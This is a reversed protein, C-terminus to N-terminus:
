PNLRKGKIERDWKQLLRFERPSVGVRSRFCSSFHGHSSFGTDLAISLIDQKTSLLLWRARRLRQEIVYQAPTASFSERFAILLHHTQIQLVAGLRDLTLPEGLHSQIYEEVTRKQADSFRPLARRREPIATGRRYNQFLHIGLTWSLTQSMMRALDDGQRMLGNLRKVGQHLFPDYQGACAGVETQDAHAVDLESLLTSEIFLEAYRVSGGQALSSYRTGAPIVWVEGPMPPDMVGGVGALETELRHIPGDLHVVIAHSGRQISWTTLTFINQEKVYFEVGPWTGSCLTRPLDCASDATELARPSDSLFRSM